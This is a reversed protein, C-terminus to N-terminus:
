WGPPDVLGASEPAVGQGHGRPDFGQRKQFPVVEIAFQLLLAGTQGGAGSLGRFFNSKRNIGCSHTAHKTREKGVTFHPVPRGGGGSVGTGKGTIEPCHQFM